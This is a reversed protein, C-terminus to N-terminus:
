NKRIENVIEEVFTKASKQEQESLGNLNSLYDKRIKNEIEDRSVVNNDIEARYKMLVSQKMIQKRENSLGEYQAAGKAMALERSMIESRRKDLELDIEGGKDNFVDKPKYGKMIDPEYGGVMADRYAETAAKNMTGGIPRIPSQPPNPTSSASIDPNNGRNTTARYLYRYIPDGIVGASQGVMEGAEGGFSAMAAMASPGAWSGMAAGMTAGAAYGVGGGVAKFAKRRARQRYMDARENHSLAGAYESSDFNQINIKKRIIDHVRKDEESATNPDYANRFRDAYSGNNYSGSRGGANSSNIEYIIENNDRMKRANASKKNRLNANSNKLNNNAARKANINEKNKQIADRVKKAEESDGQGSNELENLRNKNASLDNKEKEIDENNAKIEEDNEGIQEDLEANEQALQDNEKALDEKSPTENSNESSTDNEEGDNEGSSESEDSENEDDGLQENEDDSSDSDDTEDSEDSSDDDQEEGDEGQENPEDEDAFNDKDEDITKDEEGDTKESNANKDEEGLKGLESEADASDKDAKADKLGGYTGKLAKAGSKLLRGAAMMAFMGGTKDLSGSRLSLMSLVGERAPIIAWALFLVVISVALNNGAIVPFLAVIMILVYDIFPTILNAIVMNLWSDLIQKRKTSPWLANLLFSLILMVFTLAMVTYSQIFFVSLLSTGMCLLAIVFNGNSDYTASLTDWMDFGQIGFEGTINDRIVSMFIDRIYIAVDILYPMIIVAIIMMLAMVVGDKAEVRAKPTNRWANKGLIAMAQIVIGVFIFGAIIEYLIATIIGYPNGPAFEFHFLSPSNNDYSLRGLVITDIDLGVSELAAHLADAAYYIIDTLFSAGNSEKSSTGLNKFTDDTKDSEKQEPKKQNYISSNHDIWGGAKVVTTTTFCVMNFSIFLALFILKKIKLSFNRREM